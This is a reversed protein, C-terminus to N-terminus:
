WSESQWQTRMERITSDDRLRKNENQMISSEELTRESRMSKEDM